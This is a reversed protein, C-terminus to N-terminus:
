LDKLLSKFICMPRSIQESSLLPIQALKHPSLLVFFMTITMLFASMKKM